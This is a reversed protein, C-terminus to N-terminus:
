KLSDFCVISLIIFLIIGISIILLSNIISLFLTAQIITCFDGFSIITGFCNFECNSLSVVTCSITENM